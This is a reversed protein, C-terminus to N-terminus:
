VAGGDNWVRGCHACEPRHVSLLEGCGPCTWKRAEEGVFTEVGVEGIRQLNALMSMGYKARYRKDLKRLTDCPLKECGWCFERTGSAIQDCTKIKCRVCYGPKASDDGNCGPCPNKARGYARCLACDMGCPAILDATISHASGAASM